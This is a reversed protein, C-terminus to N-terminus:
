SVDPGAMSFRGSHQHLLADQNGPTGPEDARMQALPQQPVPVLHQADVIEIRARAAVHVIQERIRAELQHAM